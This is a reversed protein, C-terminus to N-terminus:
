IIKKPFQGHKNIDRYEIRDPVFKLLVYAPDTKGGKFYMTYCDRWFADKLAQDTVVTIAGYYRIDCKIKYNSMVISARPDRRIEGVKLSSAETVYWLTFDDDVRANQMVRANAHGDKSVTALVSVNAEKAFSLAESKLAHDM